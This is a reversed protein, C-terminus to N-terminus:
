CSVKMSWMGPVKEQYHLQEQNDGTVTVQYTAYDLILKNKVYKQLTASMRRMMSADQMLLISHFDIQHDHLLALLNTINNGCNTSKTELLDAQQHYKVQLYKQFLEVEKLQTVKVNPMVQAMYRRLVPTTHGYGGVIITRKALQQNIAQALLDGGPIISGGFLVIVDVQRIGYRQELATPTLTALDPPDCFDALTNIATALKM